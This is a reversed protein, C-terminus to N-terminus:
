TFSGESLDVFPIGKRSSKSFRDRLVVTAIVLSRLLSHSDLDNVKLTRFVLYFINLLLYLDKRLQIGRM